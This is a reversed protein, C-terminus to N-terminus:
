DDSGFLYDMPSGKEYNAKPNLVADREKIIEEYNHNKIILYLKLAEAKNNHFIRSELLVVGACIAFFLISFVLLYIQNSNLYNQIFGVYVVSLAQLLALFSSVSLIYRIWDKRNEMKDLYTKLLTEKIEIDFERHTEDYKLNLKKIKDLEISIYRRSKFYHKETKLADLFVYSM